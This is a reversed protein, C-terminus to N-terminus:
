KKPVAQQEDSTKESGVPLKHEGKSKVDEPKGDQKKVDTKDGEVKISEAGKKDSGGNEANSEPKEGSKKEASIAPKATENQIFGRTFLVCGIVGLVISVIWVDKRKTLAAIAGLSIAVQMCTVCWAYWEHRALLAESEKNRENRKEELEEAQKKLDAQGAKQKAAESNWKKAGAQQGPMAAMLAATQASTSAKIGKAQYYAWTDSAQAQQLVADSKVIGSENVLAGALLSAIAALVAFLATTLSIFRTWKTQKAEEAREEREERLEDITEQLDTTEIEIEEAM